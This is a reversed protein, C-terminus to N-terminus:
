PRTAAPLGAPGSPKPPKPPRPPPVVPPAHTRHPQHVGGAPARVSANGIARYALKWTVFATGAVLVLAGAILMGRMGRLTQRRVAGLHITSAAVVPWLEDPAQVDARAQRSRGIIARTEIVERRCQECAALHREADALDARALRGDLYESLQTEDLHATRM